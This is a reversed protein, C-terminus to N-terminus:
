ARGVGTWWTWETWQTWECSKPSSVPTASWKRLGTCSLHSTFLNERRYKTIKQSRRHLNQTKKAQAVGRGGKAHIKKLERRNAHMRLGRQTKAAKRSNKKTKKQTKQAKERSNLNGDRDAYIQLRGAMTRRSGSSPQNMQPEAKKGERRNGQM